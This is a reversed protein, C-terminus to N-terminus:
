TKSKADPVEEIVALLSSRLRKAKETLCQESELAYNRWLIDIERALETFLEDRSSACVDIGLEPLEICILQESKDLKPELMFPYRFRLTRDPYTFEKLLLPSLDAKRIDGNEDVLVIVRVRQMEEFPLPKDLILRRKSDVLGKAEIAKM